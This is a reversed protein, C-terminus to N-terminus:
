SLIKHVHISKDVRECFVEADEPRGVISGYHCPIATKPKLENVFEAAEKANMTYTGGIPVIAIDCVVSKGEPTADMDGCIYIRSNEIKLVYSLWGNEKPHMPKGINYAPVTEVPIEAIMCREEPKMLILKEKNIGSDLAAREMSKPMVFITDQKAAKQFDAPSFHDMHAHTILILDADHSEQELKFPDIYIVKEARICISNQTNIMIKNLMM